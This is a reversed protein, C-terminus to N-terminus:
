LVPRDTLHEATRVPCNTALDDDALTHTYYALFRRQHEGTLQLSLARVFSDIANGYVEGLAKRIADNM